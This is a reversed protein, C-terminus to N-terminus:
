PQMARAPANRLTRRASRCDLQRPSPCCAQRIQIRNTRQALEALLVVADHTWGEAVGVAEVGAAEARLALRVVVDARTEFPTFGVRM